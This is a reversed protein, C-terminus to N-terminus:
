FFGIQVGGGGGMMGGGMMGGGQGENEHTCKEIIVACALIFINDEGPQIEAGYCNVLSIFEKTVRAVLNGGRSFQFQYAIFDGNVQIDGGSKNHMEIEFQNSVLTFKKKIVAHLVGMRFIEYHPMGLRIVQHIRALEVGNFIDQFTMNTGISFFSGNVSFIDTGNTDQINMGGTLSFMKQKLQYRMPYPFVTAGNPQSVYVQQQFGQQQFGQQQFGQQPFGQQQFGQQPYVQQQFGQQPYGQQQFGQQPYGQQQFGQQPYGQQQFGQQQFGQQQYDQQEEERLIEREKEKEREHHHLHM